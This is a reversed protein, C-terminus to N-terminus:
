GQYSLGPAQEKDERHEIIGVDTTLLTGAVSVASQLAIREVKTPVIVGLEKLNGFKDLNAEWGYEIDSVGEIFDIGKGQQYIDLYATIDTIGKGSNEALFQIPSKLAEILIKVGLQEDGETKKLIDRLIFSAYYPMVGGGPLIGEEVAAKCAHLADEVRDRLEKLEVESTAGVSIKAVGGTLRALRQELKTRDYTSTESNDIMNKVLTIRDDIEEKIGSGGIILCKDKTIKVSKAKGLLSLTADPEGPLKLNISGFDKGGKESFVKGGTLVAIDELIDLQTDGWFPAKVAVSKVVGQMKNMILTPLAQGSCDSAIFLVAKDKMKALEMLPIVQKASNLKRDTLVIYVDEYEAKIEQNNTSFYPSMMGADLQIGDVLEIETSSSKGEEITIVGDNGVKDMASAIIEGIERDQNAACTGIQAIEEKGSVEISNQNYYEVVLDLGRKMGRVIGMPNANASLAKMGEQIITAAFITATTTGDGAEDSAQQAVARVMQAGMNQWQDALNIEKAVSVGDKTIRPTEMPGREMMVNRGKPGLTKGVAKALVLAGTVLEKRVDADFKIEKYM